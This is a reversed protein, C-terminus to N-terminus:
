VLNAVNSTSDTTARDGIIGNGTLNGNPANQDHYKPAMVQRADFNFAVKAVMGQLNNQPQGSDKFEIIIRYRNTESSNIGLPTLNLKGNKIYDAKIKGAFDGAIAERLSIDQSNILLYGADPADPDIYPPTADVFYKVNLADLFQDSTGGTGLPNTVNATVGMFVDEIALSGSNKLVFQREFSDGPQINSLDFNLPFDWAKQLEVNLTGAAFGNHLTAADSFYAFTGGGILSLGLAASAAGLGLKRKISM